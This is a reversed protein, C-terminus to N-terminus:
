TCYKFQIYNSAFGSNHINTDHQVQSTTNMYADEVELISHCHYIVENNNSQTLIDIKGLLCIGYGPMIQDWWSNYFIDGDMKLWVPLTGGGNSVLHRSILFSGRKMM